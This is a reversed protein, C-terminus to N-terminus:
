VKIREIDRHRLTTDFGMERIHSEITEAIFVSRHRGGTCGIGISLYYRGEQEYQSMM